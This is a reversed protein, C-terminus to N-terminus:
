AAPPAGSSVITRDRGSGKARYLAEDARRFLDAPAGAARDLAAVGVSVTLRDVVGFAAEGVALRFREVGVRAGPMGTQPMLWAFEEGGIRAIVDSGRAHERLLDALGRLTRDGTLHGHADNVRKFHDIDIIALSLPQDYRRAREVEEVLSAHFVGHHPLDTLPDTSARRLLEERVVANAVAIGAFDAFRELREEADDSLGGTRSVVGLAGWVAGDVRIPAAASVRWPHPLDVESGTLAAYDVRIPRGTAFVRATTGEGRLPLERVTHADLAPHGSWTGVLRGAEAGSFEVVGAGDAGVLRAVEEAVRGFVDPAEEGRTVAAAVRHLAAREAEDRRTADIDTLTVVAGDGDVPTVAVTLWRTAAGGDVSRVQAARGGPRPLGPRDAPLILARWDDGVGGAEARASASEWLANAEHVTGDDGVIAVAAPVGEMLSRLRASALADASM